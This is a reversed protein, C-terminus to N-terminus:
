VNLYHMLSDYRDQLGQFYDSEQFSAKVEYNFRQFTSIIPGLNNRNLKLTIEVRHAQPASTVLSSLISTGESEVIRAVESMSYDRSNVELILVGGPQQLAASQAFFTLVSEHTIVGLYALDEEVVPLISVQQTVILKIVEYLHESSAVYPRPLRLEQANLPLDPQNLDFIDDESILGVLKGEHVIPLHSVHFDNMWNLAKDGTDSTKLPPIANSILSKAIM